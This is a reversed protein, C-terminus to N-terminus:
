RCVRERVNVVCSFIAIGAILDDSFKKSKKLGSGRLTSVAEQVHLASTNHPVGYPAKAFPLKM